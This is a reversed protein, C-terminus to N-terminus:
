NEPILNGFILVKEYMQEHNQTVKRHKQLNKLFGTNIKVCRLVACLNLILNRANEKGAEAFILVKLTYAM